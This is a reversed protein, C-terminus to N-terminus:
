GLARLTDELSGLQGQLEARRGRLRSVEAEPARSVFAQNGLQGDLKTREAGLKEVEKMLRKKEKDFDIVGALPVFFTLEGAVATASQAPRGGGAPELSELRALHAVYASQAVVDKEKRSGKGAYLVKLKLGPPVNLQSRLARISAVAEMVPAMPAPDVAYPGDKGPQVRAEVLFRAKEGTYPKLAQYLEETIFPM